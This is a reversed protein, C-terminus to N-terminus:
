RMLPLEHPKRPGTGVLNMSAPGTDTRSPADNACVGGPSWWAHPSFFRQSEGFKATRFLSRILFAPTPRILEGISCQRSELSRQLQRVPSQSSIFIHGRVAVTSHVKLQSAVHLTRPVCPIERAAMPAVFCGIAAPQSAPDSSIVTM